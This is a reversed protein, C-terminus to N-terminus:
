KSTLPSFSRAFYKRAKVTAFTMRNSYTTTFGGVQGDIFWPRWDDVISFNLSSIWALTGLYPISMDHDGSYILARHGKTSLSRHYNISSKVEKVYPLGYNCRQWEMVTGKRIHLAKLVSNDNAWINALLYNYTRCGFEPHQPQSLLSERSNGELSRRHEMENQKPSMLFCKRELIHPINVLGTCESVAQLDTACHVNSPDVNVYEGKCSRKTSDTLPNGLLYGKFNIIPKHRAENGNSIEQAILPISIGSYSDGALYFPTAMFEPHDILWKRFFNHTHKASKLDGIKSGQSSRSYSFGTGVPADLFIISSVKTWSYPNLVLTPLSGNYEVINFNLPGIEFALGTFASCGPGGTLWLVLPDEMPNRESKVFYYFLQVDDSEDVGVYGTQLHFPLSGPFGPLSNITSMSVALGSLVVLLLLQLSVWGSYSSCFKRPHVAAAM